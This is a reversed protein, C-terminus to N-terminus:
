SRSDATASTAGAPSWGWKPMRSRARAANTACSGRRRSSTTPAGCTRRPSCAATRTSRSNVASNSGDAADRLGQGRWAQLLGDSRNSADCRLHLLRLGRPLRHGQADRRGDRFGQTRRLYARHRVSRSAGPYRGRSVSPRRRHRFYLGAAEELRTAREASSVVIACAADTELCCDYLRFPYSVWRAALYDDMTLPRGRMM